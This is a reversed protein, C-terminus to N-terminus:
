GGGPATDWMLVQDLHKRFVGRTGWEPGLSDIIGFDDKHSEEFAKIAEERMKPKIIGLAEERLKLYGGRKERVMALVFERPANHEAMLAAIQKEAEEAGPGEGAHGTMTRAYNKAWENAQDRLVAGHGAADQATRANRMAQYAGFGMAVAAAFPIAIAAVASGVAAGDVVLVTAGAETGVAQVAGRAGQKAGEKVGQKAAEAAIKVWDAEVKGAIQIKPKAIYDIGGLTVKGEGSFGGAVEFAGVSFDKIKEWEIGVGIFKGEVIGKCWPYKTKAKASLGISAELKKLGAEFTLAEEVKEFGLSKIFDQVEKGAELEVEVKAGQSGTSGGVTNNSAEVGAEVPVFQVEGKVNLSGKCYLAKGELKMFDTLSEPVEVTFAPSRNATPAAPAPPAAAPPQRALVGAIAQNGAMRQLALVSSPAMSGSRLAAAVSAGAGAGGFTTTPAVPAAVPPAQAVEPQPEATTREEAM